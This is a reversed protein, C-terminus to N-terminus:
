LKGRNEKLRKIVVPLEPLLDSAIMGADGLRTRVMEVAEGHLYVATASAEFASLGQALLGAVVGSLVDGTGASALGPNATLSIRTEDGATAVVTYAGKLVMTKSWKQAARRATGARDSQVESTSTDALRAMEGAHPTLIADSALRQWWRPTKALINLADADIVLKPTPPKLRFLVSKVLRIASQSQGLGCGILLVDYRELEHHILGVAQPSFVGPSSEPLPLHTVETLKAALIPHLGAAAALTVLGAGARLAANCALYAAGTYNASGAVVLVRGFTGKNATLPRQPLATSVWEATILETTVPEVLYPPIGIDVITIRGAREAGPSNFLGPKPFGLTITNDAYLCAPDVAGTDADLGSPLDLAIIRLDPRKKKAENVRGLAKAMIGELPRNKGTGFIADVVAAASALWGDLRDLTKDEVAMICDIGRERALKFNIDDTARDGFVYLKVQAGWDHLHRTAVLGDGGNNGPGILVVIPQKDIAGLIQKVEAAVAHGANEMLMAVPLGIGACAQEARRMQEVTLIKM